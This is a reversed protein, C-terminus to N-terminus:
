LRRTDQCKRSGIAEIVQWFASQGETYATYRGKARGITHGDYEHRFSMAGIIIGNWLRVICVKNGFEYKKHEKGKYICLVDLEHLSYIKHGDLLEGNVFSQFLELHGRYKSDSPLESLVLRGAITRMRRDANAVKKNSHSKGRFRQTLKLGKVERVYSQRM